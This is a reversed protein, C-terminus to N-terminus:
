NEGEDRSPLCAGALGPAIDDGPESNRGVVSAVFVTRCAEIRHRRFHVVPLKQPEAVRIGISRPQELIKRASRPLAITFVDLDHHGASVPLMVDIGKRFRFLIGTELLDLTSVSM